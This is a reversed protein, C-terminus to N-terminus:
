IFGTGKEIPIPKIGTIKGIHCLAIHVHGAPDLINNDSAPSVDIRMFKFLSDAIDLADTFTAYGDNPLWSLFVPVSRNTTRASGLFFSKSLISFRRM